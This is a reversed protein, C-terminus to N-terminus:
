ASGRSCPFIEFKTVESLNVVLPISGALYSGVLMVIVLLILVVTDDM